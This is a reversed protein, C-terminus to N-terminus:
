LPRNQPVALIEIDLEPAHAARDGTGSRFVLPIASVRRAQLHTAALMQENEVGARSDTIETVAQGIVLRKREIEVQGVGVVVVNDFM